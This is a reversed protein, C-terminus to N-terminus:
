QLPRKGPLDLLDLPSKVSSMHKSSVQLYRMTSRISSHGLMVGITRLDVGAELLHTAFAHRLSHIGGRKTIGAKKRAKRYIKQVSSRRMPRKLDKSPFLYSSPRDIRWYNRLEVLLRESLITYRDKKGKGCRVRIVKRDSDIDQVCLAVVESVRLGAAYTTMLLVRHKPNTPTCLIREVEERSLIEPLKSETRRPPIWLKVEEREMVQRYLFRLAARAINCSSWALKREESLYLLYAQVKEKGIRDPSENYFRAVEAVAAVYSEQTRVSLGRLKMANIMKERLKTVVVEESNFHVRQNTSQCGGHIDV